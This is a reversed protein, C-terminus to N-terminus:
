LKDLISDIVSGLISGFAIALVTILACDVWNLATDLEGVIDPEEDSDEILVM